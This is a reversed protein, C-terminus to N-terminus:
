DEDHRAEDLEEQESFAGTSATGPQPEGGGKPPSGRSGIPATGRSGAPVSRSGSLFPLAVQALDAPQIDNDTGPVAEVSLPSIQAFVGSGTGTGNHQTKPRIQTALWKQGRKELRGATELDKCAQLVADPRRRIARALGKGSDPHEAAAQEVMDMLEHDVPRAGESDPGDCAEMAGECGDVRTLWLEAPAANNVKVTALKLLPLEDPTRKQATLTIAWRVGDVIASAGRISDVSGPTSMEKPKGSHHAVIVNPRGTAACSLRECAQIYVTAQANDKETDFGASRSLTDIIVLAYPRCEKAAGELMRQLKKAFRSQTGDEETLRMNKGRWPLATVNTTVMALDGDGVINAAKCAYHLRRSFEPGDEEGAVYLVRGGAQPTAWGHGAGLWTTGTAVAVALQTLAYSKGSGGRAALLGVEGRAFVGAGTDAITLLYYRRPPDARLAGVSLALPTLAEARDGPKTVAFIRREAEELLLGVSGRGEYGDSAIAHAAEILRRALAREHVIFGYYLLNSASPVITDFMAITSEGGVAELAGEERLRDAVSVRDVKVGDEDLLLMSQYIKRHAERYFDEPKLVDALQRLAVNSSEGGNDLLVGGLCSREADLDHPPVRGHPVPVLAHPKANGTPDDLHQVEAM